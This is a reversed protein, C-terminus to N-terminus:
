GPSATRHEQGSGHVIPVRPRRTFAQFCRSQGARAPRVSGSRPAGRIGTCKPVTSRPEPRVHTRGAKRQTLFLVLLGCGTGVTFWSTRLPRSAGVVFVFVGARRPAGWFRPTQVRTKVTVGFFGFEASRLTARTRRVFPMSTVVYM